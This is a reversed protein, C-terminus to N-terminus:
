VAGRTLPSPVRFSLAAFKRERGGVGGERDARFQRGMFRTM